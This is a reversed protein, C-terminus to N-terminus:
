RQLLEILGLVRRYGRYRNPFYPTHVWDLIPNMCEKHYYIAFIVCLMPMYNVLSRMEVSVTTIPASKRKM